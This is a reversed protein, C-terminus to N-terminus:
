DLPDDLNRLWAQMRKHCSPCGKRSVEHLAVRMAAQIAAIAAERNVLNHSPYRPFDRDYCTTALALLSIMSSVTSQSDRGDLYHEAALSNVAVGDRVGAGWGAGTGSNQAFCKM